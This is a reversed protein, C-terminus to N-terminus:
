KDHKHKDSPQAVCMANVTWAVDVKAAKCEELSHYSGFIHAWAMTSLVLWYTM